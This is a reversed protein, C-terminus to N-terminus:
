KKGRRAALEDVVPVDAGPRPYAGSGPQRGIAEFFTKQAGAGEMMHVSGDPFVAYATDDGLGIKNHQDQAGHLVRPQDLRKNVAAAAKDVHPGTWDGKVPDKPVSAVNSGKSKMPAVGLLDYDGVVPKKLKPDIVQGKEVQWFPNKLPLEETVEKGNKMVTRRAVGDADVTFYGHKKVLAFHEPTTATLVGTKESSKFGPISLEKPKGPAGQKILPVAAPKNARFMIISDTEKAAAAMADFHEPPVGMKPNHGRTLKINSALDGAKKGALKQAAKEALEKTPGNLAERAERKAARRRIM